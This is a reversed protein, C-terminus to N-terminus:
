WRTGPLIQCGGEEGPWEVLLVPMLRVCAPLVCLFPFCCTVYKLQLCTQGTHRGKLVVRLEQQHAQDQRAAPRPPVHERLRLAPPPIGLPGRLRQGM